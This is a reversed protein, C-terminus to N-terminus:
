CSSSTVVVGGGGLDRHTKDLVERVPSLLPDEGGPIRNFSYRHVTVCRGDVM